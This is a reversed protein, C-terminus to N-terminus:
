ILGTGLPSTSVPITTETDTVASISERVMRSYRLYWVSSKSSIEALSFFSPSYISKTCFKGKKEIKKDMNEPVTLETSGAFAALHTFVKTIPATPQIDATRSTYRM